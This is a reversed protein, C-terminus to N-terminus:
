LLEELKQHLSEERLNRAVIRGERDVLINSPISKIGYLEAAANRWGKFDSVNPWVIGDKEIARQLSSKNMDLSVGFVGFGKEHYKQYAKVINPNEIRCPSCWSAWFDILTYKNMRYVDSLRTSKEDVGPMTFDPAIAGIQTSKLIKIRNEICQGEYSQRVRPTMLAYLSDLETLDLYYSLNSLIYPSVYSDPHEKIYDLQYQKQEKRLHVIDDGMRVIADKNTEPDRLLDNYKSSFKKIELTYADNREKYLGFADQTKSGEIVVDELNDIVGEVSINTNEVFVIIAGRLNDGQGLYCLTPKKVVGEFVFENDFVETSDVKIPGDVGMVQLYIYGDKLGKVRGKLEYGDEKQCSVFCLMLLSLSWMCLKQVKKRM